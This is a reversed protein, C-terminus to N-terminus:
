VILWFDLLAIMFLWWSWLLFYMHFNFFIYTLIELIWVFNMLFSYVFWDEWFLRFIFFVKFFSMNFNLLVVDFITISGFKWCWITTAMLVRYVRCFCVMPEMMSSFFFSLFICFFIFFVKSIDIFTFFSYMGSNTKEFFVQFFYFIVM